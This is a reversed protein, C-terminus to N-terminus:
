WAVAAIQDPRSCGLYRVIADVTIVMSLLDNVYQNNWIKKATACKSTNSSTDWKKTPM